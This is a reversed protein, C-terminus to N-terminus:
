LYKSMFVANEDYTDLQKEINSLIFNFKAWFSTSQQVAVLGISKFGKALALCELEQIARRAYGKGRASPDFAFDHIFLHTSDAISLLNIKQNLAPANMPFWPHALIYAIVKAKSAANEEVLCCIANHARSKSKLVELDEHLESTYARKQIRDVAVWHADTIITLSIDPEM